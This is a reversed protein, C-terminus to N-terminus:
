QLKSTYCLLCHSADETIMSIKKGRLEYFTARQRQGQPLMKHVESLFNLIIVVSWNSNTYQLM